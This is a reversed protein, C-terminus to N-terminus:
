DLSYEITLLPRLLRDAVDESHFYANLGSSETECKLLLGLNQSPNKIWNEIVSPTIDISIMETGPTIAARGVVASEYSANIDNWTSTEAFAANAEHAEITYSGYVYDAALTLTAKKVKANAPLFGYIPFLIFTRADTGIFFYTNGGYYSTTAGSFIYTDVCSTYSTDPFHGQQFNIIYNNEVTVEKTDDFCSIFGACIFLCSLIVTILNKM